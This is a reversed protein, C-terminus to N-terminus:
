DSTVLKKYNNGNWYYLVSWAKFEGFEIGDTQLTIIGNSEPIAPDGWGEIITHAPLIIIFLNYIFEIEDELVFIKYKYGELQHFVILTGKKNRKELIAAIDTRKNGDFDGCGIFPIKQHYPIKKYETLIDKSYLKEDPLTYEPYNILYLKSNMKVTVGCLDFLNIKRRTAINEACFVQSYLLFTLLIILFNEKKLQLWM